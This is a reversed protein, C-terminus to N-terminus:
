RKQKAYRKDKKSPKYNRYKVIMTYGSTNNVLQHTIISLTNEKIEIISELIENGSEIRLNDEKLIWKALGKHEFGDNIVYYELINPDKFTLTEFNNEGQYVISIRKRKDSTITTMSEFLWSDKVLKPSNETYVIEFILLFAFLSFKKIYNHM